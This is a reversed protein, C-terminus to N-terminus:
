PLKTSKLRQHFQLPEITLTSVQQDKPLQSHYPEPNHMIKVVQEKNISGKVTVEINCPKSDYSNNRNNSNGGNNSYTNNTNYGSSSNNTSSSSNNKNKFRNAYNPDCNKGKYNPNRIHAENVEVENIEVAAPGTVEIHNVKNRCRINQRNRTLVRPEFDIAVRMADELHDSLKQNFRGELEYSLQRFLSATPM